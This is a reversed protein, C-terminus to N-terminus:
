KLPLQLETKCEAINKVETPGLLYVTKVSGARQKNHTASWQGLYATAEDLQNYSGQVLVTAALHAAEHEIKIEGRAPVTAASLPMCLELDVTEETTSHIRSFPRGSLLHKAQKEELYVMMKIFSASTVSGIKSFFPHM